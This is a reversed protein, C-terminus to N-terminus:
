IGKDLEIREITINFENVVNIIELSNFGKTKAQFKLVDLEWVPVYGTESTFYPTTYKDGTKTVSLVLNM